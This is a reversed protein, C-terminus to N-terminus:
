FLVYESTGPSILKGGVERLRRRYVIEVQPVACLSDFSGEAYVAYSSFARAATVMPKNQISVAYDHGGSREFTMTGQLPPSILSPDGTQLEYLWDFGAFVGIGVDTFEDGLFVLLLCDAERLATNQDHRMVCRITAPIIPILIGGFRCRAIGISGSIASEPRPSRPSIARTHHDTTPQRTKPRAQINM